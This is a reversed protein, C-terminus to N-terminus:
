SVEERKFLHDQCFAAAKSFDIKGRAEYIPVEKLLSLYPAEDLTMDDTFFGGTKFQYFPGPSKMVAALLDKREALEVPEIQCTDQATRSWNLILFGKLKGQLCVKDPSFVDEMVVDYKEELHWLDEPSMATLSDIKEPSLMPRLRANNLLTGPNVRPWKAIGTASIAAGQDKLFLRDNTLYSLSDDELMHLMLTSKGGGSFGAIGLTNGEKSLAAAHCILAGGQQLHTMYQANIFNIVQNDNALCPGYAVLYDRSQLFVMGTRVKQVLRCDDFDEFADKRGSKGPERQWDTFSAGFKKAPAEIAHIVLDPTEVETRCLAFYRKLAGILADSNSVLRIAFGNISIELPDETWVEGETMDRFFSQASTM